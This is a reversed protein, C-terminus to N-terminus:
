EFGSGGPLFRASDQLLRAVRNTEQAWSAVGALQAAILRKLQLVEVPRAFAFRALCIALDLVPRTPAM